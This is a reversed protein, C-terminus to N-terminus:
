AKERKKKSEVATLLDLSSKSPNRLTFMWVCENQVGLPDFRIGWLWLPFFCCNESLQLATPCFYIDPCSKPSPLKSTQFIIHHFNSINLVNKNKKKSLVANPVEEMRVEFSVEQLQLDVWVIHINVSLRCLWKNDVQKFWFQWFTM